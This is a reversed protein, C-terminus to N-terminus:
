QLYKEYVQDLIRFDVPDLERLPKRCLGCEIGQRGLIYRIGQLVETKILSEVIECVEAQITLAERNKGKRFSQAISLYKEAMFNFTAGIAGDCGMALGGLFLDDYGNLVLFRTDLQKLRTIQNLNTSTHKIGIIYENRYLDAINEVTLEV